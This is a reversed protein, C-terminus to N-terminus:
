PSAPAIVIRFGGYDLNTSACRSRDRAACHIDQADNWWSGGRWALLDDPQFSQEYLNSHSPYLQWRSTTLEWVNGALDLAGWSSAGGPFCGVPAIEQRNYAALEPGPLVDGWPYPSRDANRGYAAAVEWEAETPLRIVYDTPLYPRLHAQLWACFASAEYWCINVIPLNGQEFAQGEQNRAQPTALETQRWQWGAATWWRQNDYGAEEIFLRYQAVTIPYRAIQFASLQMIAGPAAGDWGGIQYSGSGVFCWYRPAQAAPQNIETAQRWETLSTPTRPDAYRGILMAARERIERKMSPDEAIQAGITLADKDAPNKILREDAWILVKHLDGAQIAELAPRTVALRRQEELWIQLGEPDPFEPYDQSLAALANRLANIKGDLRLQVISQYRSKFSLQQQAKRFLTQAEENAAGAEIIPHLREEVSAWDEKYAAAWAEDIRQRIETLSTEAPSSAAMSPPGNDDPHDAVPHGAQALIAKCRAIGARADRIDAMIGPSAHAEGMRAVQFLYHRLQERLLQIRQRQAAIEEPNLM